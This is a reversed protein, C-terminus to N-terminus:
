GAPPVATETPLRTLGALRCAFQPLGDMATYLRPLELPASARTVFGSRTTCAWPVGLEELLDVTEPGYDGRAGNPFAFGAAPAGVHRQILDLCTAIEQRAEEKTLRSLVYHRHTHGAIEIGGVRLKSVDEWSLSRPLVASDGDLREWLEGVVDDVEARGARKL